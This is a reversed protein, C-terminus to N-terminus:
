ALGPRRSTDRARIREAISRPDDESGRRTQVPLGSSNVSRATIVPHGQDALDRGRGADASTSRPRRAKKSGGRGASPAQGTIDASRDGPTVVHAFHRAGPPRPFNASTPAKHTDAAHLWPITTGIAQPPPNTTSARVIRQQHRDHAKAGGATSMARVEGRCACRPLMNRAPRLVRSLPPVGTLSTDVASRSHLHPRARRGRIGRHDHRGRPQKQAAHEV